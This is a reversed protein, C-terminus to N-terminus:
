LLACKLCSISCLLFMAALANNLLYTLCRAVKLGSFETTAIVKTLMARLSAVNWSLIRMAAGEYRNPRMAASYIPLVAYLGTRYPLM